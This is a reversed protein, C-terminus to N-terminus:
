RWIAKVAACYDNPSAATLTVAQEPTLRRLVAAGSALDVALLAAAIPDIRRCLREVARGSIVRPARPQTVPAEHAIPVLSLAPM